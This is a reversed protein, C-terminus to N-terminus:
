AGLWVRDYDAEDYLAALTSDFWEVEDSDQMEEIIQHLVPFDAPDQKKYWSSRKVKAVIADRKEEFTLDEDRLIGKIDVTKDWTKM